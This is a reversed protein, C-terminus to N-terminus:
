IGAQESNFGGEREIRVLGAVIGRIVDEEMYTSITYEENLEELIILAQEKKTMTDEKRKGTRGM